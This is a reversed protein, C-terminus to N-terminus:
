QRRMTLQREEPTMQNWLVRLDDQLRANGPDRKLAMAFWRYALPLDRSVCHGTAYMTGLVSDAKSSGQEAAAHLNSEARSCNSSVGTGYLYREGDAELQDATASPAATERVESKSPKAAASETKPAEADITATAAGGNSQQNGVSATGSPAQKQSPAAAASTQDTQSPAPPASAQEGSGATNAPSVPNQAAAAPTSPTETTGSNSANGATTAAPTQQATESASTTVAAAPSSAQESQNSSPGQALRSAVYARVEGRWYWAATGMGVLVILLVLYRGWHRESVEDELLYAGTSAPEDALGLFSPGSVPRTPEERRSKTAIPELSPPPPQPLKAGCMGCFRYRADSEYGCQECRVPMSVLM